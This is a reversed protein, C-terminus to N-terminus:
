DYFIIDVEDKEGLKIGYDLLERNDIPFLDINEEAWDAAERDLPDALNYKKYQIMEGLEICLRDLTVTPGWNLDLIDLCVRGDTIGRPREIGAKEFIMLLEELEMPEGTVPHNINVRKIFSINPHFIPTKWRVLPPKQPYEAHLYIWVIHKESIVDEEAFGRCKFLVLYEDPPKGKASFDILSSEAKLAKMREFEHLLRKDRIKM